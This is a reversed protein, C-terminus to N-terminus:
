DRLRLDTDPEGSLAAAIRVTSHEGVIQQGNEVQYRSLDAVETYAGRKLGGALRVLDTASMEEGLAYKGPKEVQGQIVVAAPDAKLSSRQIFIRDKAELLIDNSSDGGLAKALNVSIVRLKNDSTRRFVQADQLEAEPKTGGALYVAQEAYQLIPSIKVRDGDQVHFEELTSRVAQQDNNQPLDLRIMTRKEHAVLREVDMHRLVASPLVGGALELVEALTTEGALE